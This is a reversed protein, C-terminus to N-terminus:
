SKASASINSNIKSVLGDLFSQIQELTFANEDYHVSLKLQDRFYFMTISAVMGKKIPAIASLDTVSLPGDSAQTFDGRMEYKTLIRGVNTFLTTASVNDGDLLKALGGPLLRFVSIARWFNLSLRWKQIVGMEQNISALLAAEDETEEPMRDLNILTCHNCAPMKRHERKRENVPVMLRFHSGDVNIGNEMQWDRITVFLERAVLSNATSQLGGAFKKLKATQEKSFTVEEFRPERVKSENRSPIPALPIAKQKLVRLTARVSKWQGRLLKFRQAVTLAPKCRKVITEDDIKRLRSNELSIDAEFCRYCEIWDALLQLFGLGDFAVHHVLFILVPPDTSDSGDYGFMKVTLEDAINMFSPPFSGRSPPMDLWIIAPMENTRVWSPRNGNADDVKCRALLNRRVIAAFAKDAIGRDFQKSFEIRTAFTSPYDPVDTKLFYEEFATLRIPFRVM